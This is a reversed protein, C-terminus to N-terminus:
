SDNQAARRAPCIYKKRQKPVDKSVTAKPISNKTEPRPNPNKPIIMALLEDETAPNQECFVRYGDEEVVLHEFERENINDLYDDIKHIHEGEAVCEYRTLLRAIEPSIMALLEPTTPPIFEPASSTLM